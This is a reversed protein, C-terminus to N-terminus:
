APALSNPRTLEDDRLNAAEVEGSCRALCWSTRRHAAGPESPSGLAASVKRVSGDRRGNGEPWPGEGAWIARAFCCARRDIRWNRM